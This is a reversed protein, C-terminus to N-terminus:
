LLIYRTASVMSTACTVCLTGSSVTMVIVWKHWNVLNKPDESKELTVEWPSPATENVNENNEASVGVVGVGMLVEPDYGKERDTTATKFSDVSATMTLPVLLPCHFIFPDVEWKQLLLPPVFIFLNWLVGKM